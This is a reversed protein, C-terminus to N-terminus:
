SFFTFWAVIILGGKLGNWVEVVDDDDNKKRGTLSLSLFGIKLLFYFFFLPFLVEFRMRLKGLVEGDGNADIADDKSSRTCLYASIKFPSAAVHAGTPIGIPVSGM